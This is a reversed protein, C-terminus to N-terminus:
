NSAFQGVRKELDVISRTAPRGMVDRLPPSSLAPAAYPVARSSPKRSESEHGKLVSWEVTRDIQGVVATPPRTEPVVKNEILDASHQGRHDRHDTVVRRASLTHRHTLAEAKNSSGRKSKSGLLERQSISRSLDRNNNTLAPSVADNAASWCRGNGRYEYNNFELPRIESTYTPPLAPTTPHSRLPDSRQVDNSLPWDVSEDDQEGAPWASTNAETIFSLETSPKDSNSRDRSSKVGPVVRLPTSDPDTISRPEPSAKHSVKYNASRVATSLPEVVYRVILPKLAPASAAILGAWLEVLSWMWYDWLIWTYDYDHFVVRSLMVTRGVGVVVVAYGFAFLGILVMKKNAPM